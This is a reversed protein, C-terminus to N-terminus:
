NEKVFKRVTPYEVPSQLIGTGYLAIVVSLILIIISLLIMGKIKSDM